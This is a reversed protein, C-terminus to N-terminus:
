RMLVLHRMEEEIRALDGLRLCLRGGPPHDGARYAREQAQVCTSHLWVLHRGWRWHWYWLAWSSLLGEDMREDYWLGLRLPCVQALIRPQTSLSKFVKIRKEERKRIKKKDRVLPQTM